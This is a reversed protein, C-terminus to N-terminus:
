SVIEQALLRYAEAAPSKPQYEAVPVGAASADKVHVTEPIPPAFFRITDALETKAREVVEGAHRTRNMRTPIIGLIALEPNLDARMDQITDLLLSVGILAYFEAAMPILIEGAASFGNVTLIGLSPPCDIIVFRYRELVPKLANKLRDERRARTILYPELHSLRINAPALDLNDRLPQIISALPRKNDLVTSLEHELGGAAIGFGEALHGQSDLDVLLTPYGLAALSAGLNITTTTKASGGKQNAVAIVRTM